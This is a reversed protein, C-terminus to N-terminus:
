PLAEGVCLLTPSTRHQLVVKMHVLKQDSAQAEHGCSHTMRIIAKTTVGVKLELKLLYRRKFVM